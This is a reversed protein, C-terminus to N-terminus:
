IRGICNFGCLVPLSVIVFANVGDSIAFQTLIIRGSLQNIEKPLFLMISNILDRYAIFGMAGLLVFSM